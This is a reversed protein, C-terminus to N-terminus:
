RYTNNYNDIFDIIKNVSIRKAIIKKHKDLLYIVPTGYIDYLDHFDKTVSRTGNVNIGPVNKEHMAKKWKDLDSNVNIAYVQIDYDNHEYLKRLEVIEKTCVGCDSDWFFLVTYNNPITKFSIYAGTTDILILDPAVEDLLIPRIKNARDQLSKLISPTTNSIHENSFYEDVLHVFVKDFGMFQPNQYESIFHWVLYGVVEQSPRAKSIVFDIASIVSDPHFVVMQNFYQNTKRMFIPTRLLTSDSLNFYDWYHQKLYKYSQTSDSSNKVSDPIEVDRMANLLASVFTGQNNDIINIKYTTNIKNLSDLNKKYFDANKGIAELSDIKNVISKNIKFQKENYILYNYFLENESSGIVKMNGAYDSLNTSLKFKQNADVIFEFLKKKQMSVVMYIGGPLKKQGAFVFEGQKTAYATDIIKIKEGFYSTLLISSDKFEGEINIKIEYENASFANFSLLITVTILLFSKLLNM